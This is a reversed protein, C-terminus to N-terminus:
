ININISISISMSISMTISISTNLSISISIKTSISVYTYERIIVKQAKAISNSILHIVVQGQMECKASRVGPRAKFSLSSTHHRRMNVEQVM